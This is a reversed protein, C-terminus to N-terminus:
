KKNLLQKELEDYDYKRSQFASSGSKKKPKDPLTEPFDTISMQEDIQDSAKEPVFTFKYGIVPSGRKRAREVEVSLGKFCFQLTKVSPKIIEDMFYKNSYTSPCDMKLRLEDVLAHYWGQTRFQKLLRYLNKAYKSNLSVFEALEFRTFNNAIGDLIFRFKENIQITLIQSYPDIEYFPFLVFTTIKTETRLKCTVKILKDNMREIDAILQKATHGAYGTLERIEDFTFNIYEEDNDRIKSCIGMLMNLDMATFNKFNLSNMYNDYKVIEHM